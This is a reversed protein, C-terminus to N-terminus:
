DFIEDDSYAGSSVNSANNVRTDVAGNAEEVNRPTIYYSKGNLSLHLARGYQDLIAIIPKLVQHYISSKGFIDNLRSALVGSTDSMRGRLAEVYQLLDYGSMGGESPITTEPFASLGPVMFLVDRIDSDSTVLLRNDPQGTYRLYQNRVDENLIDALLPIVQEEFVSKSIRPEFVTPGDAIMALDANSIREEKMMDRVINENM